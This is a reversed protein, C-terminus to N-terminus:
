KRRKRKALEIICRRMRFMGIIDVPMKDVMEELEANTMEEAPKFMNKFEM